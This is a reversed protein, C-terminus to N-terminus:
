TSSRPCIKERGHFCFPCIKKKSVVGCKECRKSTLGDSYREGKCSGYIRAYNKTKLPKTPEPRNADTM